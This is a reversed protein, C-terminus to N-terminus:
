NRNARPYANREIYVVEGEGVVMKALDARHSAYHWKPHLLKTTTVPFWRCVCRGSVEMKSPSFGVSIGVHLHKLVIVSYCHSSSENSYRTQWSQHGRGWVDVGEGARLDVWALPWGEVGAM